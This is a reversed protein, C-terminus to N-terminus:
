NYAVLVSKNWNWSPSSVKIASEIYDLFANKAIPTAGLSALHKTEQQCDILEIGVSKCWACLGALAIKSANPVKTFMSEGFVMRGISVCYLGGVLHENCWTEISHAFGKTHLESYANMIQPTIWTGDQGPRNSNACQLMVERFNSDVRIEWSPDHLVRGLTKKLSHSVKFDKPPLVMRPSTCWWMVPQGESYWPFIGQQYAQLLFDANITESLALLGDPLKPNDQVFERPSPFSDSDELWVLATM